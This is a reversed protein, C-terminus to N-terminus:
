DYYKKITKYYNKRISYPNQIIPVNVEDWSQKDATSTEIDILGVGIPMDESNLIKNIQM